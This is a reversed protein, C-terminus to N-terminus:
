MAQRNRAHDAAQHAANAEGARLGGMYRGGREVGPAFDPQQNLSASSTSRVSQQIGGLM